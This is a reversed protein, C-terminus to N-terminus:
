AARLYNGHVFGDRQGDGQIDVARWVGDEGVVRVRTGTTLVRTVAFQLGPGTRLNVSPRATVEYLTGAAGGPAQSAEMLHRLRRTPMAPGPDQKRKPAIQDHGVIDLIGPYVRLIEQCVALLADIQQPPYIEWGYGKPWGNPHDAVIVQDAQFVPTEGPRQFTGGPRPNLWGYNSVEIGISHSNLDTFGMWESEGAHFARQNCDVTQIFSGDRDLILHASLGLRQLADASGSAGGGATYHIVIFRPVIVGGHHPSPRQQAVDLRNNAIQM